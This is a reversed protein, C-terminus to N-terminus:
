ASKYLINIALFFFDAKFYMMHLIQPTTNM